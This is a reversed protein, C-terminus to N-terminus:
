IRKLYYVDHFEHREEKILYFVYLENKYFVVICTKGFLEHLEYKFEYSAVISKPMGREYYVDEIIGGGTQKEFMYYGGYSNTDAILMAREDSFFLFTDLSAKKLDFLNSATKNTYLNNHELISKQGFSNSVVGAM